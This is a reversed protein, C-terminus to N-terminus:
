YAFANALSLWHNHPEPRCMIPVELFRLDRLLLLRIARCEDNAKSKAPRACIFLMRLGLELVKWGLKM